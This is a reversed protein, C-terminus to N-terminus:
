HMQNNRCSGRGNYAAKELFGDQHYEEQCYEPTEDFLVIYPHNRKIFYDRALSLFAARKQKQKYTTEPRFISIVGGGLIIFSTDQSPNYVLRGESRLDKEALRLGSTSQSPVEYAKVFLGYIDYLLKTPIKRPEVLVELSM